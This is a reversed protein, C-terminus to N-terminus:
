CPQLREPVSVPFRTLGHRFTLGRRHRAM